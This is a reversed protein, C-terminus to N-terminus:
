WANKSNIWTTLWYNQINWFILNRIICVFNEFNL